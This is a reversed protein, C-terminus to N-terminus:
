TRLWARLHPTVYRVYEFGFVAACLAEAAEQSTIRSGSTGSHVVANRLERLKNLSGRVDEPLKPIGVQGCMFPLLVNVVDGFTLRGGTFGEVHRVSAHRVLSERIIPM